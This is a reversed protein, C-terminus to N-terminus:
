LIGFLNKQEQLGNVHDYFTEMNKKKIEEWYVESVDLKGFRKLKLDKASSMNEWRSKVDEMDDHLSQKDEANLHENDLLYEYRTKVDEYKPEYQEVESELKQFLLFPLNLKLVM